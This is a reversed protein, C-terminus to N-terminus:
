GEKREQSPTAGRWEHDGHGVELPAAEGPPVVEATVGPPISATLAVEDGSREWRVKIPGYASDYSAECWDLGDPTLPAIRVKRYGPEVPALGALRRHMWDAVSGFAYHNFSTMQGPNITGDPLMSDWREWITTAGMSVPYLWSPNETQTIMKWALDPRGALELADLILPTGVFGTSVRFDAKEVLEALRRGAHVRREDDPLLSWVLAMAYATQCDGLMRGSGTVFEANFAALSRESV